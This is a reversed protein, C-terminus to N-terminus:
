QRRESCLRALAAGRGGVPDVRGGGAFEPRGAGGPWSETRNRRGSRAGGSHVRQWSWRWRRIAGPTRPSGGSTSLSTDVILAQDQHERCSVPWPTSTLCNTALQRVELFRTQATQRARPEALLLGVTLGAVTVAAAAAPVWHRRFVAGATGVTAPVGVPRYGLFARVDRCFCRGFRLAQRGPACRREWFMIWTSSLGSEGPEAARRRWNCGDWGCGRAAVPRHLLNYSRASRTSIPAAAQEGRFQEPQRVRRSCGSSRKRRGRKPMWCSPSGFDLIQSGPTDVLINSPKLDRHIILARPARFARCVRLFLAARSRAITRMLM